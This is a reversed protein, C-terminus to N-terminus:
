AYCCPWSWRWFLTCINIVWIAVSDYRLNCVDVFFPISCIDVCKIRNSRLDDSTIEQKCNSVSTDLFPRTIWVDSTQRRLYFASFKYVADLLCVDTRRHRKKRFPFSPDVSVRSKKCRHTSRAQENCCFDSLTGSLPYAVVTRPTSQYPQHDFFASNYIISCAPNISVILSM